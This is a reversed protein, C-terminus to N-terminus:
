GSNIVAWQTTTSKFCIATKLTLLSIAADTSGGNINGGSQAYIKGTSGSTNVVVYPQMLNADSPMSIGDSGSATLTIFTQAKKVVTADAVTTGAATVAAATFGELRALEEPTGLSVLDIARAM